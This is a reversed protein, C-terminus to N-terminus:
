EVPHEEYYGGILRMLQAADGKLIVRPAKGIGDFAFRLANYEGDSIHSCFYDAVTKRDADPMDLIVCMEQTKKKTDLLFDYVIANNKSLISPRVSPHHIFAEVQESTFHWMGDIKEGQLIGSAIYNRLTRDTLGTFLTLHGIVYYEGTGQM